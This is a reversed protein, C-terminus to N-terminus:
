RIHRYLRRVVAVIRLSEQPYIPKIQENAALLYSRGKNDKEIYKVLMEGDAEAIVIDGYKWKDTCEVILFDGEIMGADVMSDGMVRVIRTANTDLDAVILEELTITDTLEEDSPNPFGMVKGASIYGALPIEVTLDNPPVLYGREDKQLHGQDVLKKVLLNASQVHKLNFIACVQRLSPMVGNKKYFQVIKQRREESSLKERKNNM